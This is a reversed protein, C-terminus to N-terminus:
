FNFSTRPLTDSMLKPVNLFIPSIMFLGVQLNWVAKAKLGLATFYLVRGLLIYIVTALSPGLLFHCARAGWPPLLCKQNSNSNAILLWPDLVTCQAPLHGWYLTLENGQVARCQNGEEQWCWSQKVQTFISVAAKYWQTEWMCNSHCSPSSTLTSIGINCRWRLMHLWMHQFSTYYLYWYM